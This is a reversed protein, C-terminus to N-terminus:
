KNLYNPPCKSLLCLLIGIFQELEEVKLNLSKNIDIQYAYINSESVVHAILEDGIIDKFYNIPEQIPLHGLPPNGTFPLDKLDFNEKLVTRWRLPENKPKRVPKPATPPSTFPQKAESDSELVDFEEETESVLHSELVFDSEDSDSSLDREESVEPNPISRAPVFVRKKSYFSKADM